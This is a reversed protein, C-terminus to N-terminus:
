DGRDEWDVLKDNKYSGSEKVKKWYCTGYKKFVLMSFTDLFEGAALYWDWDDGEFYNNDYLCSKNLEALTVDAIERDINCAAIYYCERIGVVGKLIKKIEYADDCVKAEVTKKWDAFQKEQQVYDKARKIPNRSKKKLDEKHRLSIQRAAISSTVAMTMAGLVATGM